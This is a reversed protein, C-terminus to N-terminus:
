LLSLRRDTYLEVPTFELLHASSVQDCLEPGAIDVLMM